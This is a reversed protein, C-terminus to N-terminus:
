KHFIYFDGSTEFQKFKSTVPHGLLMEDEIFMDYACKNFVPIDGEPIVTNVKDNNYTMFDIEMARLLAMIQPRKGGVVGANILNKEGHHIQGYIAKMPKAWMGNKIKVPLRDAYLSYRDTILDFPNKNFRVDFLDTLWVKQIEPHSELYNKWCLFREDNVGLRTKPVYRIFALNPSTNREIFAESLNDHFIIAALNLNELSDVFPDILHDNDSQWFTGRQPDKRSTFYCTLIINM